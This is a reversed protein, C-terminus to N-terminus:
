NTIKIAYNKPRKLARLKNHIVIHHFLHWRMHKEIEGQTKRKEKDWAKLKCRRLQKQDKIYSFFQIKFM